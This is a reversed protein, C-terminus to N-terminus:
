NKGEVMPVFAVPLISADTTEGGAGRVIRRLMQARHVRGVPVVMRGGAALQGVLAEPVREPAATVIIADFPAAHPLGRWGDGSRVSVNGYGLVKLREGATRGLEPVTEISHVEAAIEALVATQYGSGTGVELVRDDPALDLLDTMLAVIFPQSITQGHGIPRPRNVYAYEREGDPFFAHRPVRAMAAMVADSLRPRGTWSATDRAEQEIEELLRAKARAIEDDTM